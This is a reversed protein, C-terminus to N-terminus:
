DFTGPLQSPSCPTNRRGSQVHPDIIPEVEDSRKDPRTNCAHTQHGALHAVGNRGDDLQDLVAVLEGQAGGRGELVGLEAEGIAFSDVLLGGVAALDLHTLAFLHLRCCHNEM